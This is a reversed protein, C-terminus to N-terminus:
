SATFTSEDPENLANESTENFQQLTSEAERTKDTEFYKINSKKKHKKGHHHKKKKKRKNNNGNNKNSKKKPTSLYRGPANEEKQKKIEELFADNVVNYQEFSVPEGTATIMRIEKDSSLEENTLTEIGPLHSIHLGNRYETSDQLTNKYFEQFRETFPNGVSFETHLNYGHFDSGATQVGLNNKECIEAIDKDFSYSYNDPHFREMGVVLGGSIENLKKVFIDLIYKGNPVYRLISKTRKANQVIDQLEQKHEDGRYNLLGMPFVKILGPHAIVLKGGANEVLESLKRFSIKGGMVGGRKKSYEILGPDYPDFGYALIHCNGFVRGGIQSNVEDMNVTFECGNVLKVNPYKGSNLISIAEQVGMITNHDTIAILADKGSREAIKQAEELVTEVSDDCGGERSHITHTHLDILSYDAM